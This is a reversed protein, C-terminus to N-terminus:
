LSGPPLTVIEGSRQIIEQAGPEFIWELQGPHDSIERATLQGIQRLHAVVTPPLVIAIGGVTGRGM